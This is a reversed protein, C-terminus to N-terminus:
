WITTTFCSLQRDVTRRNVPYFKFTSNGIRVTHSLHERDGEANERLQIANYAALGVRFKFDKLEKHIKRPIKM